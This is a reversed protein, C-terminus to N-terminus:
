PRPGAGIRTVEGFEAALEEHRAAVWGQLREPTWSRPAIFATSSTGPGTEVNVGLPRDIEGALDVLFQVAADALGLQGALDAMMQGTLVLLAPAAQVADRVATAAPIAETDVQVTLRRTM